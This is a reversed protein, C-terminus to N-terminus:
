LRFLSRGYSTGPWPHTALIIVLSLGVAWLARRRRKELSGKKARVWMVHAIILAALMGFWHEVAFYRLTSSKMVAPLDSAKPLGFPSYVFYLVLGLLVQTDFAALFLRMARTESAGFPRAALAGRGFSLLAWGAGLFVLWRGWSHLFLVTAYRTMTRVSWRVLSRKDYVLRASAGLGM